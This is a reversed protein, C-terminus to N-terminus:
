AVTSRDRGHRAPTPVRLGRRRRRARHDLRRHARQPHRVSSLPAPAPRPAEGRLGHLEPGDDGQPHLGPLRRPRAGARAQSRHGLVRGQRPAGDHAPRLAGRPGRCLRDGRRRAESLGPDRPRVRGARSRPTRSSPRSWRSPCSWATRRRPMSRHLQPRLVERRQPSSIVLPVLERMVRERSLAEFRPHLASLKVSIGPRNPLPENGASRGIADIAAAYSEFYRRADAATRAGEGLMDFSYRYLRGHGSGARKLADEITQGLVFHNAMVRMAQRTAARVAPLGLRKALQGLIGEPTEGPQIIRATIGLAWASASVLFADSKAEHAAFDGQGLKDEILRDATAADPVRLLAEALVMLASARRPRSRTSGCCRRSAGSAAAAPASRRSSARRAHADVRRERESPLRGAALLRRAIAADDEAFPADFVPVTPRDPM